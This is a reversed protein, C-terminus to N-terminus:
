RGPPRMWIQCGYFPNATGLYLVGHRADSAFSRVGYNYPDDFGNRSECTWRLGDRTSCLDFGRIVPSAFAGGSLVDVGTSIDFTGAYLVGNQEGFRWIYKNLPSSFGEAAADGEGGPMVREWRDTADFRYVRMGIPGGMINIILDPSLPGTGPGPLTPGGIGTMMRFTNGDLTGVYVHNRFRFPAAAGNLPSDIGPQYRAAPHNGVVPQWVWRSGVWRGKVTWFGEHITQGPVLAHAIYFVYLWGYASVMDAVEARAPIMGPEPRPLEAFPAGARHDRLPNSSHWIGPQGPTDAAWFLKGDHQTIARISSIQGPRAPSRFVETVDGASDIALLRCTQFGASGAYLVEGGPNARFSKMMRYGIDAPSQFVRSWLRTRTDLRYISPGPDPVLPPPVVAPWAPGTMGAMAVMMAFINRNTGVYLGDGMTEMSWAYSNARDAMIGDSQGSVPVPPGSIREWGAPIQAALPHVCISCVLLFLAGKM